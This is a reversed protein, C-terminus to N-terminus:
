PVYPRLQGVAKNNILKIIECENLLINIFIIIAIIFLYSNHFIHFSFFINKICYHHGWLELIQVIGFVSVCRAGLIKFLPNHVKNHSYYVNLIGTSQIFNVMFVYVVNLNCGSM